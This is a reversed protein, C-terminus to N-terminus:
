GNAPPGGQPENHTEPATMMGKSEDSSAATKENPEAPAVSEGSEDGFDATSLSSQFEGAAKRLEVILRGLQRAVKPLKEPGLVLLGVFILVVVEWLGLGFM